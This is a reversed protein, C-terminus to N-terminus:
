LVGQASCPFHSSQRPKSDAATPVLEKTLLSSHMTLIVGNSQFEMMRFEGPCHSLFLLWLAM